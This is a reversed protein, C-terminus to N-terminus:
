PLSSPALTKEDDSNPRFPDTEMKLSRVVISIKIPHAKIMNFIEIVKKCYISQHVFTGELLHEIQMGLCFKTKGM